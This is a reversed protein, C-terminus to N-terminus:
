VTPTFDFVPCKPGACKNEESNEFLKVFNEEFAEADKECHEKFEDLDLVKLADVMGAMEKILEQRYVRGVAQNICFVSKGEGDNTTVAICKDDIPVEELDEEKYEPEVMNGDDDEIPEPLKKAIRVRIVALIPDYPPQAERGENAETPEAGEALPLPEYAPTGTMENVQLKIKQIWTQM